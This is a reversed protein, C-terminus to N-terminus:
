EVKRLVVCKLYASEPHRLLIPHDAAQGRREEVRFEARAGAAAARLIDLFQAEDVHYSCSCTVLVGGAALLEMARRNIERYGRRAAPADRRSKAFAPPDLVVVDFREKAACAEKLYDFMNDRVTRVSAIGNREASLRCLALASESSDVAVVEDARRAAHLGFLGTNSFGDLFRGRAHEAARWRNERQDLFTGTKQGGLPDVAFELRGTPGEEFVWVLQPCSGRLVYKEEPLGELTRVGMDNRVVITEIGLLEPLVEGLLPLLTEAGLTTTQVCAVPGYRDVVLGPLADAADHVVRYADTTAAVVRRREAAAALRARWLDAGPLRPEPGREIWRLAIKSRASLFASGLCRGECLVRVVDGDSADISVVDDRYIWPHGSRARAAGKRTIECSSPIEPSDIM